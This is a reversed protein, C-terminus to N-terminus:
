NGRLTKQQWEAHCYGSHKLFILPNIKMTSGHSPLANSECQLQSCCCLTCSWPWLSHLTWVCLLKKKGSLMRNIMKGRHRCKICGVSKWEPQQQEAFPEALNLPLVTLEASTFDWLSKPRLLSLGVVPLHIEGPWYKDARSEGVTIKLRLVGKQLLCSLLLALLM